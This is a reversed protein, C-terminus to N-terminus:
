QNKHLKSAALDEGAATGAMAALLKSSPFEVGPHIGMEPELFPTVL